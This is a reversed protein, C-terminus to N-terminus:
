RLQLTVSYGAALSRRRAKARSATRPAASTEEAPRASSSCSCATASWRSSRSHWTAPAASSPLTRTRSRSPWSWGPRYRSSAITSGWLLLAPQPIQRPDYAPGQAPRSSSRDARMHGKVRIPRFHGEVMEPTVLAPDHVAGRLGRRGRKPSSCCASSRSSRRPM